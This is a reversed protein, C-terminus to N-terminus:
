SAENSVNHLAIHAQQIDAEHKLLDTFETTPIPRSMLYGQVVDIGIARALELQSTTEIGEAVIKTGLAHIMKRISQYITRARKSQDAAYVISKDLKVTNADIHCLQGLNAHATGFDDIAITVGYKRLGALAKGTEQPNVLKISETVELELFCAAEEHQNLALAAGEFYDPSELEAASVNVALRLGHPMLGQELWAEIAKLASCLAYSGLTGIQQNAEAVEVVMEPNILGLEPHNWRMLLEGGVLKADAVNYQPQIDFYIEKDVLAKTIDRAVIARREVHKLLKPNYLKYPQRESRSTQLAVLSHHLLEQASSTQDPSRHAAGICHALNFPANDDLNFNLVQMSLQRCLRATDREDTDMLALIMQSDKTIGLVHHSPVQDALWRNYQQLIEVERTLGIGRGIAAINHIQCSLVSVHRAPSEELLREIHHHCYAATNLKTVPDVSLAREMATMQERLQYQQFLNTSYRVSKDLLEQSIDSKRIFDAIGLKLARKQAAPNDDNTLLIIPFAPLGNLNDELLQLGDTEGLHLDVFAVDYGMQLEIPMCPVDHVYKVQYNPNAKKLHRAILECAAPQDDLVLINIPGEHASTFYSDSQEADTTSGQPGLWLSELENVM